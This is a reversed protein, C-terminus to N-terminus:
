MISCEDPGGGNEMMRRLESLDGGRRRRPRMDTEPNRGCLRVIESENTLQHPLDGDKNAADPDAKHEVLYRVVEVEDNYAAMHLPTLKKKDIVNVMAGAEILRVVVDKHGNQCAQHLPSRLKDKIQYDVDAGRDILLNAIELCGHEAAFFLPTANKDDGQVDAPINAELFKKVAYINGVGAALHIPMVGNTRKAHIDAGHELLLEVMERSEHQCAQHLATDNSNGDKSKENVDVSLESLLYKVLEIAERAVALQLIPHGDTNENNIKADNEILLKVVNLNGSQAAQQLVSRGNDAIINVDSYKILMQCCDYHGKQAARWLPTTDENCKIDILDIKNLEILKDIIIKVIEIHGDQAAYHLPTLKDDTVTEVSAGNEILKLIIETHGQQAALYLPTEDKTGKFDMTIEQKKMEQILFEAVEINGDVIAVHLPIWERPGYTHTLECGAQVLTRVKELNGAEAAKYLDDPDIDMEMEDDSSPHELPEHGHEKKWVNIADFLNRNFRVQCPRCSKRTIPCKPDRKLVRLFYHKEFSIGGTSIVPYNM